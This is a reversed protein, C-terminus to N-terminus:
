CKPILNLVVVLKGQRIKSWDITFNTEFTNNIHLKHDETKNFGLIQYKQTFNKHYLLQLYM